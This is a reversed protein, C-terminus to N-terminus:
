TKKTISIFLDASNHLVKIYSKFKRSGINKIHALIELNQKINNGGSYQKPESIGQKKAYRDM